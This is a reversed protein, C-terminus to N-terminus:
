DSSKLKGAQEKNTFYEALAKTNWVFVKETRRLQGLTYNM